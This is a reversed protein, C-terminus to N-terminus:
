QPSAKKQAVFDALAGLTAFIDANIEDDYISFSFMREIASIVETVALSDLEPVSGLLHTDRSWGAPAGKLHLTEDLTTKLQELIDM